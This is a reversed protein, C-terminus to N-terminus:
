PLRQSVSGLIQLGLWFTPAPVIEFNEGLGMCSPRQNQEGPQAPHVARCIMFPHPKRQRVFSSRQRFHLEPNSPTPPARAGVSQWRPSSRAAPFPRGIPLRRRAVLRKLAPRFQSTGRGGGSGDPPPQGNLDTSFEEPPDRKTCSAMILHRTHRQGKAGTAQDALIVISGRVFHHVVRQLCFVINFKLTFNWAVTTWFGEMYQLRHVIGPPM